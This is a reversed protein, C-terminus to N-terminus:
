SHSAAMTATPCLDQRQGAEDCPWATQRYAPQRCDSRTAEGQRLALLPPKRRLNACSTPCFFCTLCGSNPM